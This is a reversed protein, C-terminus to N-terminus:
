QKLFKKVNFTNNKFYVKIFYIGTSFHSIDIIKEYGHHLHKHQIDFIEISSLNDSEIILINSTPNPYVLIDHNNQNTTNSLAEDSTSFSILKADDSVTFLGRSVSFSESTVLYSNKDIFTIAETQEFGLSSILTQTNTGSFMDNANFGDSVWVFPQLLDDYGILYLKGSITNYTGGTILGNSSLTSLQPNISHTGQTKPVIYSKTIGDVWNKTFLLLNVADFSALAEADWVTNNPNSTFDTQDSYSYNIIEATINTSNLYDTKSIKYIKLDTRNGNNNGIDGIYISTDDQTIDEWDINTANTITVIRTVQETTLDLEYLKNGGGSDNHTILKNNFFIIGSSETLNSPLLFEETVHSIQAIASFIGFAFFSISLILKM